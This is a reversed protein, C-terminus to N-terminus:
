RISMGIHSVNRMTQPINGDVVPSAVNDADIHLGRRADGGSIEVSQAFQFLQGARPKNAADYEVLIVGGDGERVPHPRERNLRQPAAHRGSRVSGCDIVFKKANQDADVGPMEHADSIARGSDRYQPEIIAAGMPDAPTFQAIQL